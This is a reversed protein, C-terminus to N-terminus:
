SLHEVEAISRVEPQGDGKDSAHPMVPKTTAVLDELQELQEIINSPRNVHENFATEESELAAQDEVKIFNFVDVHCQEFDTM